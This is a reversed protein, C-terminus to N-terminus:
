INKLSAQRWRNPPFTSLIECRECECEPFCDCDRRDIWKHAALGWKALSLLLKCDVNALKKSKKCLEYMNVISPETAAIEYAREEIERLREHITKDQTSM